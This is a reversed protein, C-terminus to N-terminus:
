FGFFFHILALILYNGTLTGEFEWRHAEVEINPSLPISDCPDSEVVSDVSQEFM